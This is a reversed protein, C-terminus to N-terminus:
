IVIGLKYANYLAGQITKCGTKKILERRIGEVRRSSLMIQLAVKKITFDDAFLQLIMKDRKNFSYRRILLEAPQETPLEINLLKVGINSYHEIFERETKNAISKDCKKLVRYNLERGNIFIDNVRKDKLTKLSIATAKHCRLRKKISKTQGIYFVMGNDTLAYITVM